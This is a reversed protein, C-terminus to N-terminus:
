SIKDNGMRLCVENRHEKLFEVYFVAYNHLSGILPSEFNLEITSDFGLMDIFYKTMCIEQERNLQFVSGSFKTIYDNSIDTNTLIPENINTAHYRLMREIDYKLDESNEM